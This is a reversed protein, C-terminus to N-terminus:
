GARAGSEPGELRDWAAALRQVRAKGAVGFLKSDRVWRGAAPDEAAGAWHGNAEAVLTEGLGLAAAPSIRVNDFRVRAHPVEPVFATPPM